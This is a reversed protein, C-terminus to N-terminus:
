TTAGIAKMLQDRLHEARAIQHDYLDQVEEITVRHCYSASCSKTNRKSPSGDEKLMQTFHFIPCTPYLDKDSWEILYTDFVTDLLKPNRPKEDKIEIGTLVWYGSYYTRILTGVTITDDWELVVGTNAKVYQM